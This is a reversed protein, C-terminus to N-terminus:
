PELKWTINGQDDDQTVTVIGTNGQDDTATCEFENGTEMAIEEPCEVSQITAGTQQTLGDSLTSELREVDIYRTVTFSGGCGVLAVSLILVPISWHNWKM